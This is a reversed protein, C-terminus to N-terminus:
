FNDGKQSSKNTVILQTSFQKDVQSIAMRNRLEAKKGAGAARTERRGARGFRGDAAAQADHQKSKLGSPTNILRRKRTSPPATMSREPAGHRPRIVRIREMRRANSPMRARRRAGDLRASISYELSPIQSRRSRM